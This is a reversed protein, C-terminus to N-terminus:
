DRVCRISLGFAKVFSNDLICYSSGLWLLWGNTLSFQTSSRYYGAQGRVVLDGHGSHLYGAAHLRLGSTFPGFSSEWIGAADVNTWETLTPIRWPSGLLLVCPDNTSEWDLDESIPNIWASNPTRFNGDHKYGQKRNFQWYWGASAETNDDLTNPQQTAGLNRTIWCKNSEGPINTVTGYTVTKTVPAVAGETHTETLPEGCIMARGTIITSDSKGCSNYAWVYRTYLNGTTLGNETKTTTTGMDTATAYNNTVSWKYGTAIPMANWNWIIQTNSQLHTGELPAMPLDCTVSVNQWKGGLYTSIVETGDANCNTCIVMLGTAPNVIANRQAFTMRPALFGKTTSKVDLMASSNPSSKDTNVAVQAHVIKGYILFIILLLFTNKM